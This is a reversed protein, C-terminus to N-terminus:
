GLSAIAKTIARGARISRGAAMLRSRRRFSRENSSKRGSSFTTTGAGGGATVGGVWRLTTGRVFFARVM